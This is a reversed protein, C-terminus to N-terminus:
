RYLSKITEFSVYETAVIETLTFDVHTSFPGSWDEEYWTVELRCLGPNLEVLGTDFEFELVEGPPFGVVIALFGFLCGGDPNYVCFEPLAGFFLTRTTHNTITFSLTSGLPYSTPEFGITVDQALVPVAAVLVLFAVLAIKM